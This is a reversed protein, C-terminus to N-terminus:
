VCMLPVTSDLEYLVCLFVGLVGGVGCFFFGLRFCVFLFVCGFLFVVFLRLVGCKLFLSAKLNCKYGRRTNGM